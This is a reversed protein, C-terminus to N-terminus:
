ESRCNMWIMWTKVKEGKRRGTGDERAGGKAPRYRRGPSGREGAQVTKGPEGKRRGTGDERAGGKAPRYRRGPSGREGAQVTKGPEGKRRGTGDEQGGVWAPTLRSWRLGGDGLKLGNEMSETILCMFRHRQMRNNNLYQPIMAISNFMGILIHIVTM